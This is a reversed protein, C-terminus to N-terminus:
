EELGLIDMRRFRLVGVTVAAVFGVGAVMIGAVPSLGPEGLAVTSRIAVAGVCPFQNLTGFVAAALMGVSIMFAMVPKMWLCLTMEVMSLASITFFPILVATTFAERPTTDCPIEYGFVACELVQRTIGTLSGGSLHTFAAVTMGAIFSYVCCSLLNWLCKSLFWRVRSGCRLIIQTGTQTLDKPLYDLNLYLCGGTVVFWLGPFLAEMFLKGRFCYMMYSLWSGEMYATHLTRLLVLCPLLFFVPILAYRPRLLGCRLDHQLLRHWSM